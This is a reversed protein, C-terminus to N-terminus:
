AAFHRAVASGPTRKNTGTNSAPPSAASSGTKTNAPATGPSSATSGAGSTSGTTSGAPGAAATSNGAASGIMQFAIVGGFPGAKNSNAIKMFCVNQQGAATGSCTTGAPVQVAIPFDQNVNSARKVLARARLAWYALSRPVQGNAKINGKNGPVDQMVTAQVGTSFAGTGTPDIMASVPGAGDTTVIHFTGTIMGGDTVQPLTSGSQAMTDALMAATNPGQGKTKGLGDTAIDTRKFVTTDPETVKNKGAGPIIGGQIGIATGNGGADGQVAAIKGHAAILTPAITSILFTSFRM